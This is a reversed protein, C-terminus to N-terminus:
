GSFRGLPDRRTDELYEVSVLKEADDFVYYIGYHGAYTVLVEHDPRAAEYIPDYVAGFHPAASLSMLRNKVRRANDKSGISRLAEVASPALVVRYNAM